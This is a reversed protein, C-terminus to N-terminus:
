CAVRRIVRWGPLRVRAASVDARPSGAKPDCDVRASRVSALAVPKRVSLRQDEFAPRGAAVVMKGSCSRASRLRCSSVAAWGKMCDQM